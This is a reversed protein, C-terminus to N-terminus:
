GGCGSEVGELFYLSVGSFAVDSVIAFRANNSKQTVSVRKILIKLFGGVAECGLRM